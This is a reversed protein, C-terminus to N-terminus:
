LKEVTFEIVVIELDDDLILQEKANPDDLGVVAMIDERSDFLVNTRNWEVNSDEHSEFLADLDGMTLLEKQGKRRLSYKIM